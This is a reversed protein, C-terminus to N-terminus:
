VYIMLGIRCLSLFDPILQNREREVRMHADGNWERWAV